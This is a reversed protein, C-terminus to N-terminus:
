SSFSGKNGAGKLAKKKGHSEQFEFSSIQFQFFIRDVVLDTVGQILLLGVQASIGLNTTIM